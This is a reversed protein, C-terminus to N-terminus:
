YISSVSKLGLVSVDEKATKNTVLPMNLVMVLLLLVAVLHGVRLAVVFSLPLPFGYAYSDYLFGFSEVVAFIFHLAFLTFLDYPVTKVPSVILRLAAYLWTSAVLLDRAGSPGGDTDAVLHFCALGLWVLTELLSLTSLIIPSLSARRPEAGHAECSQESLLAEAETCSIFDRMPNVAKSLATRLQPVSTVLLGVVFAAPVFAAFSERVCADSLDTWSSGRCLNM